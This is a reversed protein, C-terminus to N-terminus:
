FATGYHTTGNSYDIIGGAVPYTEVSWKGEELDQVADEQLTYDGDPIVTELTPNLTGCGTFIKGGYASFQSGSGAIFQYFTDLVFHTNANINDASTERPLLKKLRIPKWDDSTATKNIEGGYGLTWAVTNNTDNNYYIIFGNANFEMMKKGNPYYICYSGKGDANISATKETGNFLNIVNSSLLNIAGNEALLLQTAVFQMDGMYVWDDNQLSPTDQGGLDAGYDAVMWYTGEHKVCDRYNDNYVYSVQEGELFAGRFRLVPGRAGTDGKAGSRVITVPVTASAENEGDSLTVSINKNTHEVGSALKITIQAKSNATLGDPILIYGQENQISIRTLTVNGYKASISTISKKVGGVKLWCNLTLTLPSSIKGGSDADVTLMSESVEVIAASKGDAGDAGPAAWNRHLVAPTQFAGWQGNVKERRAQWEYPWEESVGKPDDTFTTYEVNKNAGSTIFDNQNALEPCHEDDQFNPTEDPDEDIEPATFIKTRLYVYEYDMGDRGKLYNWKFNLKQLELNATSIVNPSVLIGLWGYNQGEGPDTTFDIVQNVVPPDDDSFRVDSAWALYMYSSAGDAGREGKFEGLDQWHKEWDEDDGGLYLFIHGSDDVVWCKGVTKTVTADSTIGELSTKGTVGSPIDDEEYYDVSGEPSVGTGVAKKGTNVGDIVWYGDENITIDHDQSYTAFLVPNNVVGGNVFNQWVGNKNKRTMFWEYPWEDTVGKPNDTFALGEGDCTNKNTVIPKYDEEQFGTGSIVQPRPQIFKKTRYFVNEMGNGDAGREGKILTKTWPGYVVNGNADYSKISIALWNMSSWVEQTHITPDFWLTGRNSDSPDEPVSDVSAPSFEIDTSEDDVMKRPTSWADQQPANGDSTFVRSSMWISQTGQPVSDHWLVGDPLPDDFSGGLPTAPQSESRTFVFSTYSSQGKFRDGEVEINGVHLTGTITADGGVNLNGGVNLDGDITEGSSSGGGSSGIKWQRTLQDWLYETSGITVFDGDRGGEPHKDWVASLDGYKGLNNIKSAM